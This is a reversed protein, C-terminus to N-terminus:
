LYLTTKTHTQEYLAYENLQIQYRIKVLDLAETLEEVTWTKHDCGIEHWGMEESCCYEPLEESHFIM